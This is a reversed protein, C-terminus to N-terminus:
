WAAHPWKQENNEEKAPKVEYICQSYPFAFKFQTGWYAGSFLGKKEPGTIMPPKNNKLM